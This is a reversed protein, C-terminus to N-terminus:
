SKIMKASYDLKKLAPTLFAVGKNSMKKFPIAGQLPKVEFSASHTKTVIAKLIQNNSDLIQIEQGVRMIIKM